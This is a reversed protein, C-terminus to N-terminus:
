GCSRRIRRAIARSGAPLGSIHHLHQALADRAPDSRKGNDNVPATYIPVDGSNALSKAYIVTAYSGFQKVLAFADRDVYGAPQGVVARAKESQATPRPSHTGTRLDPNDLDERKLEENGRMSRDYAGAAVCLGAALLGVAGSLISYALHALISAM